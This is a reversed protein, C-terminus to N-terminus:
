IFSCFEFINERPWIKSAKPNANVSKIIVSTLFIKGKGANSNAEFMKNEANNIVKIKITWGNAFFNSCLGTSPVFNIEI